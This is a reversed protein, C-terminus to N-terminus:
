LSPISHTYIPLQNTRSYIVDYCVGTYILVIRKRFVVIRAIRKIKKKVQQACCFFLLVCSSTALSNLALISAVALLTKKM